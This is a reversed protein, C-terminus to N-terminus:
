MANFMGNLVTNTWRAQEMAANYRQQAKQREEAAIRQELDDLLEAARRDGGMVAMGLYKRAKNDDRLRGEANAYCIGIMRSSYADGQNAAMQWANAAQRINKPFGNSGDVYCQAVRKLANVDGLRADQYTNLWVSNTVTSPPQESLTQSCSIMLAATMALALVSSTRLKLFTTKM